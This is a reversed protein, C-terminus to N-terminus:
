WAVGNGLCGRIGETAPLDASGRPGAAPCHGRQRMQSLRAKNPGRRPRSAAGQRASHPKQAGPAPASPRPPPQPGPCGNAAAGPYPPRPPLALSAAAGPRLPHPPPPPPPLMTWARGLPPVRRTRGAAKTLARAARGTASGARWARSPGPCPIDQPGPVWWWSTGQRVRGGPTGAASSWAGSSPSRAGSEPGSLYEVAGPDTRGDRSVSPPFVPAQHPAPQHEGPGGQKKGVSRNGPNVWNRVQPPHPPLQAPAPHENIMLRPCPALPLLPPSTGEEWWGEGSSPRDSCPSPTLIFAPDGRGTSPRTRQWKAPM